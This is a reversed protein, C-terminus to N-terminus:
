KAQEFSASMTPKAQPEVETDPPVDTPLGPRKRRSALIAGVVILAFIVVAVVMIWPFGDEDDDEEKQITVSVSETLNGQGEANVALVKYYYRIGPEVETDTYSTELGLTALEGLDDPSTGKFLIYGTVPRGGDDEPAGWTITANGDTETVTLDTPESPPRYMPVVEGDITVTANMLNLWDSPRVVVTEYPGVTIGKRSATPLGKLSAGSHNWADESLVNTQFEVDFTVTHPGNNTFVLADCDDTTNILAEADGHLTANTIRYVRTRPRDGDEEEGMKKVQTCGYGKEDDSTRFSLLGRLPDDDNYTVEITDESDAKVDAGDISFACTDNNFSSWNYWGNRKGVVRTVYDGPAMGYGMVDSELGQVIPLPFAGPIDSFAEGTENWGVANGEADEVTGTADGTIFKLMGEWTTPLTRSGTAIDHPVFGIGTVGGWRTGDPWRFSWRWYPSTKHIEIYPPYNNWQNKGTINAIAWSENSFWERNCDYVYIRTHTADVDEVRYPVMAHGGGGHLVSIVGLRHDAISAEIDDLLTGMGQLPETPNFIFENAYHRICEASLQAGQMYDVRRELEGINTLDSVEDSGPPSYESVFHVLDQFQIANVSMGFCEGHRAIWWYAVGYYLAALPDPGIPEHIKYGACKWGKHTWYPIGICIWVKIYVDDGFTDRYRGKNGPWWPYTLYSKSPNHFGLGWDYNWEPVPYITIDTTSQVQGLHTKLIIPFTGRPVDDPLEFTWRNDPDPNGAYPQTSVTSVLKNEIWIEAGRMNTGFITLAVGGWGLAPEFRTLSPPTPNVTITVRDQYFDWNAVPPNLDDVTVQFVYRVEYHAIDPVFSARVTRNNALQAAFVIPEVQEWAYYLPDGDVDWSDSADLYVKTGEDVTQPDGADAIPPRNFTVERWISFDYVNMASTTSTDTLHAEVKIRAHDTEVDAVTWRFMLVANGVLGIHNFTSGSDSSFYLEFGSIRSVPGTYSWKIDQAEGAEWPFLGNESPPNPYVLTVTVTNPDSVISLELSEDSAIVVSEMTVASIRVKLSSSDVGTPATWPEEWDDATIGAISYKHVWNDTTYWIDIHGIASRTDEATTWTVTYTRGGVITEGGIPWTLTIGPSLITFEGSIALGVVRKTTYNSLARVRLQGMADEYYPPMWWIVGQTPPICDYKGPLPGWNGWVANDKIRIQFELCEVGGVLDFLSWTTSYFKGYIVQTPVEEFELVVGKEITFDEDSEDEALVKGDKELSDMWVIKVKCTSSFKPPVMWDYRPLMLTNRFSDIEIWERGGDLSYYLLIYGDTGSITYEIRYTDLAILKEGGNPTVVEVSELKASVPVTPIVMSLTVLLVLLRWGREMPRGNGIRGLLRM